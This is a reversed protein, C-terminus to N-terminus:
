AFLPLVFFVFLAWLVIFALFAYTTSTIRRTPLNLMRASQSLTGMFAIWSAALLLTWLTQKFGSSEVIGVAASVLMNGFVGLVIGLIWLQANERRQEDM